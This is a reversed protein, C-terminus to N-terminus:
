EPEIACQLPFENERAMAHVENMKAEAIEYPFIGAVGIGARHVNMMIQYATEPPHHFITELIFVVFEMTTYDDNLLLVKYLPPRAVKTRTDPAVAIDPQEFPQQTMAM